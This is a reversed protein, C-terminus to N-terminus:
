FVPLFIIIIAEQITIQLMFVYREQHRMIQSVAVTRMQFCTYSIFGFPIANVKCDRAKVEM